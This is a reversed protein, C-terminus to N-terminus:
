NELFPFATNPLLDSFVQVAPVHNGSPIPLMLRQYQVWASFGNPLDLHGVVLDLRPRFTRAVEQYELNVRTEHRNHAGMKGANISLAESKWDQGYYRLIPAQDGIYSLRLHEDDDDASVLLARRNALRWFAKRSEDCGNVLMQRWLSFALSVFPTAINKTEPELQRIFTTPLTIVNGIASLDRFRDAAVAPSFLREICWGGMDYCLLIVKGPTAGRLRQETLDAVRGSLCRPNWRVVFFHSDRYTAVEGSDYDLSAAIPAVNLNLLHPDLEPVLDMALSEVGSSHICCAVGFRNDNSFQPLDKTLGNSGIM